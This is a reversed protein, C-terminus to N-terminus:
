CEKGVRREESRFPQADSQMGQHLRLGLTSRPRSIQHTQSGVCLSREAGRRSNEVTPSCDPTSLHPAIRRWRPSFLAFCSFNHASPPLLSSSPPLLSAASGGSAEERVSCIFMFTLTLPLHLPFVSRHCLAQSQSLLVAEAYSSPLPWPSFVCVPVCVCTFARVCVRM